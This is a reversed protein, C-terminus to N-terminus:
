ITGLENTGVVIGNNVSRYDGASQGLAYNAVLLFGFILLAKKVIHM